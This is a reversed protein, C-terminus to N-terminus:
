YQDSMGIYFNFRVKDVLVDYSEVDLYYIESYFFEYLYNM